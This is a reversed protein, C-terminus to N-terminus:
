VCQESSFIRMSTLLRAPLVKLCCPHHSEQVLLFDTTLILTPSTDQLGRSDELYLFRSQQRLNTKGTFNKEWLRKHTCSAITHLLRTHDGQELHEIHAPTEGELGASVACSILSFLPPCSAAPSSGGATCHLPQLSSLHPCCTGHPGSPSKWPPGKGSADLLALRM